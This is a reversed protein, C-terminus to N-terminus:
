ITAVGTQGSTDTFQVQGQIKRGTVGSIYCVANAVGNVTLAAAVMQAKFAAISQNKGLTAQFYPVGKDTEYWLEGLFLKIASGVDQSLAYPPSALAINGSADKCLDWTTQDLLLTKGVTATGSM